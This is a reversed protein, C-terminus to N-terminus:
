PGVTVPFGPGAVRRSRLSLVRAGAAPAPVTLEVSTATVTTPTVATADLFVETDPGCHATTLALPAGATAPGAAVVTPEVTLAISDGGSRLGELTTGADLRRIGPMLDHRPLRLTVRGSGREVVTMAWGEAPAGAPDGPEPALRFETAATLGVVQVRTTVDAGLRPPRLSRLRPWGGPVLLVRPERVPPGDRHVQQQEVVALSVVYGVSLRMPQAAATWVKSLADLDLSHLTIRIPEVLTPAPAPLFASAPGVIANEHLKRMAAALAIHAVQDQDGTLTPTDAYATLLYRLVLALPPAGRSTHSGTRPHEMNRFSPNPEIAYLFWNLRTGETERDLPGVTVDPKPDMPVDNLGADAIRRLADDVVQIASATAM